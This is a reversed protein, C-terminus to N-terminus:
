WAGGAQPIKQEYTSGVRREQQLTRRSVELLSQLHKSCSHGFARLVCLRECALQAELHKQASDDYWQYIISFFTLFLVCSSMFVHFCMFVHVKLEWFVFVHLCASFNSWLCIYNDWQHALVYLAHNFKRITLLEGKSRGGDHQQLGWDIHKPNWYM